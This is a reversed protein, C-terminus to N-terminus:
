INPIKGFFLDANSIQDLIEQLAAVHMVTDDEDTLPGYSYEFGCRTATSNFGARHMEYRVCGLQTDAIRRPSYQPFKSLYHMISGAEPNM